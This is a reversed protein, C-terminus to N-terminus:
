ARAQQEIRTKLEQPLSLSAALQELYAKELFHDVDIALLSALYVESAQELNDVQTSIVQPDLPEDIWRAILTEVDQGLQQQALAEKIAQKEQEDIHGDAKSAFVMAKILLMPDSQTSYANELSEFEERQYQGNYGASGEDDQRWNKYAQYALTGVVAAGGVVAAKKGYRKVLKRSKKNGLLAGIVGGSAMGKLLDTKGSLASQSQTSSNVYKGAQSLLQEMLSNM